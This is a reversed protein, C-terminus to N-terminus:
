DPCPVQSQKLVAVIEDHSPSDAQHRPRHAYRVIGGTDVVFTGPMQWPDQTPIGVGHRLVAKLGASWIAPGALQGLTGKGLGFARYAERNRDALVAFPLKHRSRFGAALEPTAMTIVAVEGGAEQFRPYDDRVDVV